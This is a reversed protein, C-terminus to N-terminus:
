ALGGIEVMVYTYNDPAGNRVVEEVLRASAAKLGGSLSLIEGILSDAVVDHVGDSCILFKDDEEVDLKRWDPTVKDEVGIARTLVHALPNSRSKLDAAQTGSTFASLEGGITHDKTLLEASGRRVRYIRSDGIHCIAAKRPDSPDLLLVAVTSGMQKFGKEQAYARIQANASEVVVRVAEMRDDLTRTGVTKEIAECVFRSATAGESGGGMGDAVCFVTKSEDVFACDQNDKRVKGADSATLCSVRLRRKRCFGFM